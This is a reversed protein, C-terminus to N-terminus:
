LSLAEIYSTTTRVDNGQVTVQAKDDDSGTSSMRDQYEKIINDNFYFNVCYITYCVYGLVNLVCFDM